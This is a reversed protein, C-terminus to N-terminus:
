KRGIGKFFLSKAKRHKANKEQKTKLSSTITMHHKNNVYCTSQSKTRVLSLYFM